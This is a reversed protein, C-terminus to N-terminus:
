TGQCGPPMPLIAQAAWILRMHLSACCLVKTIWAGAMAAWCQALGARVGDHAQYQPAEALARLLTAGEAPAEQVHM